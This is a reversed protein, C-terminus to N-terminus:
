GHADIEDNLTAAYWFMYGLVSGLGILFAALLPWKTWSPVSNAPLTMVFVPLAIGLLSYTALISIASRVGAPRGIRKLENKHQKCEEQLLRREVSLAQEERISEDLRRVSTGHPDISALVSGRLLHNSVNVIGLPGLPPDPLENMAIHDVIREYIDAESDPVVLGRDILEDIRLRSDDDSRLSARVASSANLVREELKRLVPEMEEFSSGRPMHEQLLADADYDGAVLDDMVWGEFDERSNEFRYAFAAEHEKSVTALRSRASGLQRRLGERESSLAVLRSVLFGGIIAVIAAASQALTPLLSNPDDM